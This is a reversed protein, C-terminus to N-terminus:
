ETRLSKVPNAVAAKFTRVGFIAFAILLILIGCSLFIRWSLPTKYAFSQLYANTALWALPVAIVIALLIPKIFDVSLLTFLHIVSAGLVKRIGIEHTRRNTLFIVLGLLGMSSIIIAVIACFALLGSIAQDQAYFKRITDDLFSYEFDTDPYFEKWLAEIDAITKKWSDPNQQLAVHIIQAAPLDAFFILPHISTKVSAQNFDAMVGSIPLAKNQFYVSHGLAEDMRQFGMQRALTENIVIEKATDAPRTNRGALLPIHYLSLYSTDGSRMDVDFQLEKNKEKFLIRDRMQGNFAPSQGAISVNQISAIKLLEQKLMNKKAADHANGPPIQINLIAEKRFGMDKKLAYNVQKNVVFIGVIFVQAVVFQFIMLTKRLWASRTTGSNSFAQDKLVRIPQFGSLVFAPYFGALISIAFILLALFLIISPLNLIRGPQLGGPFFTSLSLSIFVASLVTTLFILLFTETLFQLIIQFRNSGFTKRIGIEKARQAGQATSLNIFNVAGLLLLFVVVLVLGSFASKNIKADFDSNTHIDSLPQLRHMNEVAEKKTNSLKALAALQRNIQAPQIGPLIKIMVQVGSSVTNWDDLAYQRSLNSAPITSLSIFAKFDFDSNANLDKVIGSIITSMTDNFTIRKGILEQAQVGPFYLQALNESLVLQHPANLSTSQSGALWHYQFLNFFHNDTFIFNGQARWKKAPIKDQESVSVKLNGGYRFLVTSKEIGAINQIAAYLPAPVGANKAGKNETVVRYIREKDQEYTDFSFNYQIFLYIILAASIGISLGVVNILTTIKNKRFNRWATLIYNQIM